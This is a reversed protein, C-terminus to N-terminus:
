QWDAPANFRGVGFNGFLGPEREFMPRSRRGAAARLRELDLVWYQGDPTVLWQPDFGEPEGLAVRYQGDGVAVLHGRRIQEARVAVDNGSAIAPLRTLDEDTLTALLPAVDAAPMFSPAVTARSNLEILGGWKSGNLMRAGLARDIARAYAANAPSDPKAIDGPDFGVMAAEREFLMAATGLVASRGAPNLALAPGLIGGAVDSMTGDGPLKVKLTKEKRGKITEAIDLAVSADGTALSIGAVHALEPGADGLESLAIPALEGLQATATTAFGALLDPNAELAQALATREEPRFIVPAMQYERSVAEAALRRSAFSASLTEPSSTDIPALTILRARSAQGLPDIEREALLAQAQKAAGEYIQVQDTFGAAGEEPRLAALRDAIEQPTEAEMGATAQWGRQALDAAQQWATLGESGLLAEVKDPTLGADPALGQGTAAIATVDDEILTELRATEAKRESTVATRNRVARSYLDNSLRRAEELGLEAFTGTGAAYDDMIALAFDAQAEPNPLADFAGETRAAFVTNEFSKKHKAAEAQTLTGDAVAADIQGNARALQAAITEDGAPNGGVLYADRELSTRLAEIGDVTAARAEARVRAAHRSAVSLRGVAVKETFQQEFAERLVGDALAPDRLYGGRIEGIAKEYGGPNDQHQEYAAALDTVLGQQMRWGYAKIAAADYAEGRITGSRRLQLPQSELQSAGQPPVAVKGGTNGKGGSRAAGRAEKGAKEIFKAGAAAGASRGAEEGERAAAQDAMKGIRASLRGGVDALAAATAGGTAVAFEPASSIRGAATVQQFEGPNRPLRNAM